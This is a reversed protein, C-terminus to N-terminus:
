YEAQLSHSHKVPSRKLGVTIEEEGEHWCKNFAVAM